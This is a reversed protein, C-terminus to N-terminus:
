NKYLTYNRHSNFYNQMGGLFHFNLDNSSSSENKKVRIILGQKDGDGRITAAWGIKSTSTEYIVLEANDEPILIRNIIDNETIEECRDSIVKYESIETVRTPCVEVSINNLDGPLVNTFAFSVFSDSADLYSGERKPIDGRRPTYDDALEPITIGSALPPLRFTYNKNEQEIHFSTSVLENSSKKRYSEQGIYMGNEDFIGYHALNHSALNKVVRFGMDSLLVREIDSGNKVTLEITVKSPKIGSELNESPIQFPLAALKWTEQESEDECDNPVQRSLESSTYILNDSEDYFRATAAIKSDQCTNNFKYGYSLEYTTNTDLSPILRKDLGITHERTNINSGFGLANFSINEIPEETVDSSGSIHTWKDTLNGYNSILNFNYLYSPAPRIIPSTRIEGELPSNQVAENAKVHSVLALSTIIGLMIRNFKM